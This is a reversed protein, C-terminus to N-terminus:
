DSAEGDPKVRYLWRLRCAVCGLVVQVRNPLEVQGYKVRHCGCKPCAGHATTNMIAAGDFDYFHSHLGREMLDLYYEPDVHQAM